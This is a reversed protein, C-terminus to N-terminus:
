YFTKKELKNFKMPIYDSTAKFKDPIIINDKVQQWDYVAKLKKCKNCEIVRPIDKKISQVLETIAGCSKCKFDYIM